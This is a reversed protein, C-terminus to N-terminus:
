SNAVQNVGEPWLHDTTWQMAHSKSGRGGWFCGLFFFFVFGSHIRTVEFALPATIHERGVSVIWCSSFLCVRVCVSDTWCLAWPIPVPDRETRCRIFRQQVCSLVEAMKDTMLSPPFDLETAMRYLDIPICSCAFLM